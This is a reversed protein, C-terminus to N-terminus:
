GASAGSGATPSGGAPAPPRTAAPKAFQTFHYLFIAASVSVNLSDIAPAMPITVRRHCLAVHEPLLGEYEAGFLVGLRAPRTVAVLPEADTSLVTAVLQVDWETALRRLDHGLNPSRHLPISFITGMSVRISQRYFPDACKEGLIMADVGFAASIRAISGLNEVNNTAPLVVLTLSEKQPIVSELTTPPPRRGVAMVGNHFKFGILDGIREDPVVYVPVGPRLHPRILDLKDAACLVSDTAYTSRLMREVVIRGQAVFLDGEAALERDKVNHYVALRPDALDDIPIINM